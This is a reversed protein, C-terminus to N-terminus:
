ARVNCEVTELATCNVTTNQGYTCNDDFSCEICRAPLDECSINPPCPPFIETENMFEDDGSQSFSLRLCPITVAIFVVWVARKLCYLWLKTVQTIIASMKKNKLIVKITWNSKGSWHVNCLPFFHICWYVISLIWYYVRLMRKLWILQIVTTTQSSTKRRLMPPLAAMLRLNVTCHPPTSLVSRTVCSSTFSSSGFKPLSSYTFYPM